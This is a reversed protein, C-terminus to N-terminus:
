LAPSTMFVKVRQKAKIQDISTHGTSCGRGGSSGRGWAREGRSGEGWLVPSSHCRRAGKTQLFWCSFMGKEKTVNIQKCM